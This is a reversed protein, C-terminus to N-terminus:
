KETSQTASPKATPPEVSPKAPPNPDKNFFDDQSQTAFSSCGVFWLCTLVIALLTARRMQIEELQNRIPDSYGLLHVRTLIFAIEQNMSIFQRFINDAARLALLTGASKKKPM